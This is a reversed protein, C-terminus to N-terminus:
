QRGLPGDARIAFGVGKRQALTHFEVAVFVEGRRAVEVGLVHHEGNHTLLIGIMRIVLHGAAVVLVEGVGPQVLQDGFHLRHIVVVHAKRQALRVGGEQRVPGHVESRDKGSFIGIGHQFFARRLVDIVPRDAGTRERQLLVLLVRQDAVDGVRMVPLAFHGALVQDEGDRWVRFGPQRLQFGVLALNDRGRQRFLKVGDLVVFVQLQM